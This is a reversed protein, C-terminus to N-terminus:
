NFFNYLKPCNIVNCIKRIIKERKEDGARRNLFNFYLIVGNAITHRRFEVSLKTRRFM